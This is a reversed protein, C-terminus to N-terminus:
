LHQLANGVLGSGTHGQGVNSLQITTEATFLHCFILRQEKIKPKLVEKDFRHTWPLSNVCLDRYYTSESKKFVHVNCM